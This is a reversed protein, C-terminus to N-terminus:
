YGEKSSQLMCLCGSVNQTQAVRRGEMVEGSYTVTECIIAMHQMLVPGILMTKIVCSIVSNLYVYVDGFTRIIFGILHV